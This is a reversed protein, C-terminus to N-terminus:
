EVDVERNSVRLLALSMLFTALLMVVIIASSYGVYTYSFGELYAYYNTVETATGPGGGTMIFIHPFAKVSDILRFLAAVVIAPKLLPLTVHRFAQWTSAGDLRAAELPEEPLMQLAALLMLMVFPFWEWVDAIIIAWLALRPEALWAPQPLHLLGLAWDLISIDPTFLIKWILAVVVPPLVMPVIFMSRVLELFRMRGNLLLAIAFGIVLQLSVTWFSLQAQVWVSNWFRDDSALQQYNTLGTWRLSAPNTLDLPTLSTVVLYLLPLITVVVLVVVAPVVFAAFVM